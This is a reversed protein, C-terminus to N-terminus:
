KVEIVSRPGRHLRCRRPASAISKKTGAFCVQAQRRGRIGNSKPSSIISPVPNPLAASPRHSNSLPLSFVHPAHSRSDHRTGEATIHRTKQTRQSTTSTTAREPTWPHDDPTAVPREGQRDFRTHRVTCKYGEGAEEMTADYTKRWTTCNLNLSIGSLLAVSTSERNIV